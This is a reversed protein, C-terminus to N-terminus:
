NEQRVTEKMLTQKEHPLGKGNLALNFANEIVDREEELARKPLASVYSNVRDLDPM